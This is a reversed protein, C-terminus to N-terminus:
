NFIGSLVDTIIGSNPNYLIADNGYRGVRRGDSYDYSNRPMGLADRLADSIPNVRGMEYRSLRYGPGIKKAHGYPLPKGRLVNKQIGPPLREFDARTLGNRRLRRWREPAVHERASTVETVSVTVAGGAPSFKVANELLNDVVQTLRVRDGIHLSVRVTHASANVVSKYLPSRVSAAM